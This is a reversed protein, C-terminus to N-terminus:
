AVELRAGLEVSAPIHHLELNTDFIADDFLCFELREATSRSDSRRGVHRLEYYPFGQIFCTFYLVCRNGFLEAQGRDLKM